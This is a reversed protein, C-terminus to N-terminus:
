VVGGELEIEMHKLLNYDNINIVKMKENTSLDTIIDNTQIDCPYCFMKKYYIATQGHEPVVVIGEHPQLDAKMSAIVVTPKSPIPTGDPKTGTGKVIRTVSVTHKLIM